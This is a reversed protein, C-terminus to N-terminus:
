MWGQLYSTPDLAGLTLPPVDPPDVEFHLHCGTSCGLTGVRGVEQGRFVRQGVRVFKQSLHGYWFTLGAQSQIAVANPGLCGSHCKGGCANSGSGSGIKVVFGPGGALVPVGCPAGLDIGSHFYGSPCGPDPIEISFDTCGFPQTVVWPGGALLASM